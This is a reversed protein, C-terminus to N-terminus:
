WGLANQPRSEFADYEPAAADSRYKEEIESTPHHRYYDDIILKAAPLLISSLLWIMLPVVVAIVIGAAWGWFKAFLYVFNIKQEVAEMREELKAVRDSGTPTV